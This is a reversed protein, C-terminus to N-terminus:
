QAAFHATFICINQSSFAKYMTCSIYIPFYYQFATKQEIEELTQQLFQKEIQNKTRHNLSPKSETQHIDWLLFCSKNNELIATYLANYRM